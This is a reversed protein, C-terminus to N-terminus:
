VKANMLTKGIRMRCIESGFLGLTSQVLKSGVEIFYELKCRIFKRLIIHFLLLFKEFSAISSDLTLIM